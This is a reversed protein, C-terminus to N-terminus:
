RINGKGIVVAIVFANQKILNLPHPFLIRFHFDTGANFEVIIWVAGGSSPLPDFLIPVAEIEDESRDM